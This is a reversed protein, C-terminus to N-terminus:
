VQGMGMKIPPHVQVDLQTQTLYTIPRRAIVLTLILDMKASQEAMDDSCTLCTM